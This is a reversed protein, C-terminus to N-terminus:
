GTLCKVPETSRRDMAAFAPSAVSSSPTHDSSAETALEADLSAHDSSSETALEAVSALSAATAAVTFRTAPSTGRSLGGGSQM